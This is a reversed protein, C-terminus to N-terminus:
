AKYEGKQIVQTGRVCGQMMRHLMHTTPAHDRLITKDFLVVIRRMGNKQCVNGVSIKVESQDIM